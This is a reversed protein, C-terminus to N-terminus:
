RFPLSETPVQLQTGVPLEEDPDFKPNRPNNLKAWNRESGYFTKAVDRLTMGTRPVKFLTYVTQGGQAAGPAGWEPGDDTAAPRTPTFRDPAPDGARPAAVKRIVHVPPVQVEGLQQIPQNKNFAQLAGAYQAGGYYAKSVTAYTDGARPRHLDLDYDTKAEAVPTQLTAAPGGATPWGIAGAGVVPELHGPRAPPVLPLPEPKIEFTRVPPNRDGPLPREELASPVPPLALPGVGSGGPVPLAGPLPDGGVGGPLTPLLGPKVEPLKNDPFPNVVVPPLAPAVPAGGVPPLAGGPLLPPELPKPAGAGPAPPLGPLDSAGGPIGPGSPPLAPLPGAPGGPLPAPTSPVMAPPTPTTPTDGTGNTRRLYPEQIPRQEEAPVPPLNSLDIRPSEGPKAPERSAEGERPLPPKPDPAIPTFVGPAAALPKPAAALPPKPEEAPIKLKTQAAPPATGFAPFLLNLGFAGVALSGLGALVAVKARNPRILDWVLGSFVSAKPPPSGALPNAVATPPTEPAIAVPLAARQPAPSKPPEGDPLPPLPMTQRPAPRPQPPVPRPMDLVAAPGGVPIPDFPAPPKITDNM